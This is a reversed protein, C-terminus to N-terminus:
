EFAEFNVVALIPEANEVGEGVIEGAQARDEAIAAEVCERFVIQGIARRTGERHAIKARSEFGPEAFMRAVGAAAILERDVHNAELPGFNFREIPGAFSREGGSCQGIYSWCFKAEAKLWVNAKEIKTERYVIKEEGYFVIRGGVDGAVGHLFALFAFFNGGYRAQFGRRDVQGNMAEFVCDIETAQFYFFEGEQM